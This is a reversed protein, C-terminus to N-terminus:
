DFVGVRSLGCGIPRTRRSSSRQRVASRCYPRIADGSLANDYILLIGEGEHRLREMVAAIPPEEKEDPAIWGLRVGLGVLDPRMAPESETRIWWTARYKARHREAYGAALVTKGVGRLGRM